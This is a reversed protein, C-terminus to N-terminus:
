RKGTERLHADLWALEAAPLTPLPPPRRYDIRLDYRASQYIQRLARNLDLVVDADPRRLPIPVPPIPTRLSIPWIELIPRREVRSLFVFYPESPLEAAVPPRTGGRLLDIEVLHASSAFMEQRKRDYAEFAGPALRKNVPSLVEIATVLTENGVTRIEIRHYTIEVEIVAAATLSAELLAVSAEGPERWERLDRQLVAIDPAVVRSAAIDIAEFTIYPTVAAVYDPSIRPQLQDRIAHMISSHVDPWLSPAELYPDMGPFPSEM